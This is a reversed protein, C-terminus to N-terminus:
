KCLYIDGTSGAMAVLSPEQPHPEICSIVKTSVKLKKVIKGSSWDWFVALGRSDGSMLVRGDASKNVEIAYGSVSHGKFKRATTRFKGHGQIIDISAAMSQLAISEQCVVGRLMSHLDPEAIIKIPINIQWDWIRVSKDDSTSLFRKDSDVAMLFNVSSQHHDYVQIPEAYSESDTDYHAIKGSSLGVLVESDNKPNLLLSNPVSPLTLTKLIAGSYTDWLIVKKDFGCSFFQNGTHNFCIDKVAQTHGYYARILQQDHYMDWLKIEADNGSSLLLHGTNPFMRLRTVGRSHGELKYAVRTPTQFVQQGPKKSFDVEVDEPPNMFRMSGDAFLQSTPSDESGDLDNKADVEDNSDSQYGQEHEQAEADSSYGAWPGLFDDDNGDWNTKRKKKLRRSEKRHEGSRKYHGQVQSDVVSANDYHLHEVLNAFTAVTKPDHAITKEELDVQPALELRQEVHKVRPSEDEGSSSNYGLLGDMVSAILM